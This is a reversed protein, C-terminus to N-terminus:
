RIRKKTKGNRNQPLSFLDEVEFVRHLEAGKGMLVCFEMLAGGAVGPNGSKLRRYTAESINLRSCYVDVREEAAIRQEEIRDGIQRALLLVEHSWKDTM